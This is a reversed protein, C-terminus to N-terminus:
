GDYDTVVWFQGKRVVRLIVWFQGRKVMSVVM